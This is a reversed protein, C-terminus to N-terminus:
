HGERAARKALADAFIKGAQERPMDFRFDFLKGDSAFRMGSYLEAEQTGKKAQRALTLLMSYGQAIKDAELESPMECAIRLSVNAADLTLRFSATKAGGLVSLIRSRSVADIGQRALALVNEDSAGEIRYTEAKLTGDANLEATAKLDLATDAGLKGQDLLGKGAVLLDELPKANIVPVKVVGAGEAKRAEDEEQAANRTQAVASGARGHLASLALASLGVAALAWATFRRSTQADRLPDGFRL